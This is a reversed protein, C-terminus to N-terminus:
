QRAVDTEEAGGTLEVRRLEQWFAQVLGQILGAIPAGFLAGWIGFLETGAALAFLAVAPHIGVARGLIRPGVVDGEILHVGVFYGLVILAKVWGQTLAVAVCLAGSLLVGAVPVFEMFFAVVGLLIAYPIQLVWMGAGVLLGVLTAMALTGRVYGGVVHNVVPVLNGARYRGVTGHARLWAGIRDGNVTLYVSLILTLIADFIGTALSQVTGFAGGAIQTGAGQAHAIIADRLQNLQATTIGLTGLLALAQPQLNQVQRIYHPVQHVLTTVQAAATIAIVAVFGAIVGFGIVYAIATALARPLWRSFLKVLPTIAYAVIAALVLILISRTVHALLWFAFVVVALWALITLPLLLARVWRWRGPDSDSLM